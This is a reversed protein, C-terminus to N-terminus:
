LDKDYEELSIIEKPKLKSLGELTKLFPGRWMVLVECAYGSFGQIKVEAGYVGSIKVFKKFLRAELKLREDLKASIYKTHYPSRDAASRWQGPAVKYCPVLNVRVDEAFAEVYPHEAYRLKVRYGQVAETAYRIAVSELKERTYDEPYQLFFDIDHNGKLWTGRAYSGGLVIEPKPDASEKAFTEKLRTSVKLAVGELKRVETCDPIVM